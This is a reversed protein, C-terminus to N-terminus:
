FLESAGSVIAPPGTVAGVAQELLAVDALFHADSDRRVTLVEGTNLLVCLLVDDARRKTVRVLATGRAGRVYLM